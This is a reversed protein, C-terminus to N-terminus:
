APHATFDFSETLDKPTTPCIIGQFKGKNISAQFIAGAMAQPFVTTRLGASYVEKVAIYKASNHIFAFNGLPTMLITVPSPDVPCCIVFWGKTLFIAKVPDVSTPFFIIAEVELM